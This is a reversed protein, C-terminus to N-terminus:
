DPERVQFRPCERLLSIGYMLERDIMCNGKQLHTCLVCKVRGRDDPYQVKRAAHIMEHDAASYLYEEPSVVVAQVFQVRLRFSPCRGRRPRDDPWKPMLVKDYPTAMCCGYTMGPTARQRPTEFYECGGCCPTDSPGRRATPALAQPMTLNQSAGEFNSSSDGNTTGDPAEVDQNMSHNNQFLREEDKEESASELEAILHAKLNQIRERDTDSLKQAGKGEICLKGGATTLAMGRSRLERILEIANARNAGV